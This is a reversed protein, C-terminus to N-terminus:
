RLTIARGKGQAKLKDSYWKIGKERILAARDSESMTWLDAEHLPVANPPPSGRDSVPSQSQPNPKPAPATQVPQPQPASSKFGHFYDRAWSEADGPAESAFDRHAREYQSQTLDASVGMKTLAFDLKRMAFPDLPAPAQPPAPEDTKTKNQKGLVGAKRMEAFLSDRVKAAIADVDVSPAQAVPTPAAPESPTAPTAVPAAGNGGGPADAESMLIRNRRYM